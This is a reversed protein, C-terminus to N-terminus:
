RSIIAVLGCVLAVGVSIPIAIRAFWHLVVNEAGLCRVLLADARGPLRCAFGIVTAVQRRRAESAKARFETTQREREAAEAADTEAWQRQVELRSQTLLAAGVDNPGSGTKLSNRCAPCITTLPDVVLRCALCRPRNDALSTPAGALATPAFVKVLSLLEQAKAHNNASQTISGLSSAGQILM